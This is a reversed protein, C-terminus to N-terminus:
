SQFFVFTCVLHTCLITKKKIKRTESESQKWQKSYQLYVINLYAYVNCLRLLNVVKALAIIGVVKM